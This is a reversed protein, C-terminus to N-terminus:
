LNEALDKLKEKVKSINLLPSEENIYNDTHIISEIINLKEQTYNIRFLLDEVDSNFNSKVIIEQLIYINKDNILNQSKSLIFFPKISYEYKFNVTITEDKIKIFIKNKNFNIEGIKLKKLDDIIKKKKDKSINYELRMTKIDTNMIYFYIFDVSIFQARKSLSTGRILMGTLYYRNNKENYVFVPSGSFGNYDKINDDNLVEIVGIGTENKLCKGLLYCRTLSLTAHNELYEYINREHPHGAVVLFDGEKSVLTDEVEDSIIGSFSPRYSMYPIDKLKQNITIIAIDTNDSSFIDDYKSSYDPNTSSIFINDLDVHTNKYKIDQSRKQTKLLIINNYKYNDFNRLTSNKEFNHRATLYIFSNGYKIFFGTGKLWYGYSTPFGDNYYFLNPRISCDLMKRFSVDVLATIRNLNM